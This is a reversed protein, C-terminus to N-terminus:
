AAPEFIVRTTVIGRLPRPKRWTNNLLNSEDRRNRRKMLRVDGTEDGTDDRAEPGGRDDDSDENLSVLDM